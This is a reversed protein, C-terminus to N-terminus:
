STEIFILISIFKLIEIYLGSYNKKHIHWPRPRDGPVKDEQNQQGQIATYQM